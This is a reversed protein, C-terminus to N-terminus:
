VGYIARDFFRRVDAATDTFQSVALHGFVANVFRAEPSLASAVIKTAMARGNSSPLTTGDGSSDDYFRFPIAWKAGALALLNPDHGATQTAYSGGGPINYATNITAGFATYMYALSTAPCIGVCGKYPITGDNVLLLMDLAGMSLGVGFTKTITYNAVMYAYLVKNNALSANNGWNDGSANSCAVICGAGILEYLLALPGASSSPDTNTGGYGHHWLVLPAGVAASYDAPVYITANQGDSMAVTSAKYPQTLVSRATRYIAQVQDETQRYMSETFKTAGATVSGPAATNSMIIVHAIRGRFCLSTDGNWQTGIAGPQGATIGAAGAGAAVAGAVGDVRGQTYAGDSHVHLAHVLGSLEPTTNLLVVNAGAYQSLSQTFNSINWGYSLNMLMRQGTEDWSDFCGVVVVTFPQAVAPMSPAALFQGVGDFEISPQNGMDPSAARYVPKAAGTAQVMALGGVVDTWSSVGGGDTASHGRDARWWYAINKANSPAFTASPKVVSRNLTAIIDELTRRAEADLTAGGTPQILRGATVPVFTGPHAAASGDHAADAATRASAEATVATQEALGSVVGARGNVSQVADVPTALELWNALTSAPDAALIFSKSLDSRVAVDGRQAVLALMAAQSNVPFTDTIALAPLQGVPVLGGGDLTAVGNAAGKQALPILLADADARAVVEAALGAATTLVPVLDATAPPVVVRVGTGEVGGILPVLLYTGPEDLYFGALNGTPGTVVPNPQPDTRTPNSWLTAAAGAETRIMVPTFAAFTLTTGSSRLIAEASFPAATPWTM